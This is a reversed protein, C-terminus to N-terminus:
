VCNLLKGRFKLFLSKDECKTFIDACQDKSPIWTPVSENNLFQERGYMLFKDYHM